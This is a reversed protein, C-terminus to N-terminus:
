MNAPSARGSAAWWRHEGVVMLDVLETHLGALRSELEHWLQLDAALPAGKSRTIVVIASPAGVGDIVTALGDFEAVGIEDAAPLAMTVLPVQEHDLFIVWFAGDDEDEQQRRVQTAIEYYWCMDDYTKM